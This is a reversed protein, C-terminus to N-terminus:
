QFSVIDEPRPLCAVYWTTPRGFHCSWRGGETLYTCWLTGCLPPGCQHGFSSIYNLLCFGATSTQTTSADDCVSNFGLKIRCQVHGGICLHREPQIGMWFPLAPSSCVLFPDFDSQLLFVIIFTKNLPYVGHLFSESVSYSSNHSTSWCKLVVCTFFSFAINISPFM